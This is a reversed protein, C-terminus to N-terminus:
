CAAHGPLSSVEDVCQPYVELSDLQAEEYGISIDEDILQADLTHHTAMQKPIKDCKEEDRDCLTGFVFYLGLNLTREM